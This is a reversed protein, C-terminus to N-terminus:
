LLQKSKCNRKHNDGTTIILLRTEVIIVHPGIKQLSDYIFDVRKTYRNDNTLSISTRSLYSHRQYPPM